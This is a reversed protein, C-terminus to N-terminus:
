HIFDIIMQIILSLIGGNMVYLYERWDIKLTKDSLSKNGTCIIIGIVAVLGFGRLTATIINGAADDYNIFYGIIGIVMGSIFLFVPTNKLGNLLNKM